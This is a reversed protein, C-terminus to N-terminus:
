PGRTRHLYELIAREYACMLHDALLVRVGQKEALMERIGAEDAAFAYPRTGCRLFHYCGFPRDDKTEANRNSRQISSTSMGYPVRFQVYIDGVDEPNGASWLHEVSDHVGSNTENKQTAIFELSADPLGRAVDLHGAMWELVKRTNCPYLHGIFLHWLTLRPMADSRHIFHHFCRGVGALNLQTSLGPDVVLPAGFTVCLVHAHASPGEELLLKAALLTAAAGGTSHGSFVVRAGDRLYEQLEEYLATAAASSIDELVGIPATFKGRRKVGGRAAAEECGRAIVAGDDSWLMPQTPASHIRKEMELITVALCFAAFYVRGPGECLVHTPTARILRLLKADPADSNLLALQPSGNEKTALSAVVRSLLVDRLVKPDEPLGDFPRAQEAGSHLFRHYLAEVDESTLGRMEEERQHMASSELASTAMRDGGAKPVHRVRHLALSVTPLTCHRCVVNYSLASCCAPNLCRRPADAASLLTHLGWYFRTPTEAIYEKYNTRSYAGACMFLGFPVACSKCARSLAGTMFDSVREMSSCKKCVMKWCIRCHHRKYITMILTGCRHCRHCVCYAKPQSCTSCKGSLGGEYCSYIKKRLPYNTTASPFTDKQKGVKNVRNSSNRNVLHTLKKM